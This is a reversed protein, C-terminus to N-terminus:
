DLGCDPTGESTSPGMYRDLFRHFNRLGAEQRNLRLGPYTSEHMGRQVHAM